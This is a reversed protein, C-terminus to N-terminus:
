NKYRTKKVSRIPDIKSKRRSMESKPPHHWHYILGWDFGGVQVSEIPTGRMEFTSDNIGEILPVTSVNPNRAIPDIM